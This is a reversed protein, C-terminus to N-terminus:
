QGYVVWGANWSVLGASDSHMKPPSIWPDGLPDSGCSQTHSADFERLGAPEHDPQARRPCNSPGLDLDALQVGSPSRDVNDVRAPIARTLMASM